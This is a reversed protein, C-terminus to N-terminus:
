LQGRWIERWANRDDTMTTLDQRLRNRSDELEANRARLAYREASIADLQAQLTELNKHLNTYQYFTGKKAMNEKMVRLIGDNCLGKVAVRFRENLSSRERSALYDEPLMSRYLGLLEKRSAINDPTQGFHEIIKQELVKRDVKKINQRRAVEKRASDASLIAPKQAKMLSPASQQANMLDFEMTAVNTEAQPQSAVSRCPTILELNQQSQSRFSLNEALSEPYGELDDFHNSGVRYFIFRTSEGDGSM